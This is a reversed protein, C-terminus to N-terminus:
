LRLNFDEELRSLLGLVTLGETKSVKFVKTARLLPNLGTTDEEEVVGKLAVAMSRNELGGVPKTGFGSNALNAKRELKGFV